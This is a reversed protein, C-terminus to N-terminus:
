RRGGILSPLFVLAALGAALVGWNPLGSIITQQQLWGTLDFPAAQQQPAGSVLASPVLASPIVSSSVPPTLSSAAPSSAPPAQVPTGATSIVNLVDAVSPAYPVIPPATNVTAQAVQQNIAGSNFCGTANGNADYKPESGVPCTYRPAATAASAQQWVISPLSQFYALFKPYAAAACSQGQDGCDPASSLLPVPNAQAQGASSIQAGWGNVNCWNEALFFVQQAAQEPTTVGPVIGVQGLIALNFTPTNALMGMESPSPFGALVGALYAACSSASQGLGALQRTPNRHLELLPIRM